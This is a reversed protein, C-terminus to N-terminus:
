DGRLAADIMEDWIIAADRDGIDGYGNNEYQAVMAKTPERMAEIAARASVRFDRWMEGAEAAALESEDFGESIMYQGCIVKAVREVMESM